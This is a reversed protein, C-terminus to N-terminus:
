RLVEVPSLPSHNKLYEAYVEYTTYPLEVPSGAEKIEATYDDAAFTVTCSDEDTLNRGDNLTMSEVKGNKWTVTMGSWYYDFSAEALAKPHHGVRQMHTDGEILVGHKGNELLNKLQRGTLTMQVARGNTNEGPLTITLQDELIGGGYFHLYVGGTNLIGNKYGGDSVLSVDSDGKSYLMHAFMQVTEAHTFDREFSGVEIADVGGEIYKGHIEDIEEALHSLDGNGRIADIIIDAAPVIIDEYGAYLMPAKISDLNQNWFENCIWLTDTNKANKLPFVASLTDTSLARVGEETSMWDLIRMADELKKENGEKELNKSLGIYFPINTGIFAQGARNRFPMLAFCIQPNDEIRQAITTQAGWLFMMAAEETLMRQEFVGPDWLDLNADYDFAGADILEQTMRIGEGFGDEAKAEGKQFAQCWKQGDPTYLFEAQAYSTMTTFYYGNAAGGMVIPTIGDTEKRIRRCLELLEEFSKPEEWGYKQFMDQNYLISRMTVYGPLQYISGNIDFQSLISPEYKGCVPSGSLDLLHEEAAEDTLQLSTICLDGFDDRSLLRNMAMTTNQGGYYYFDFKMDPFQEKLKEAYTSNPRVFVKLADPDGTFISDNEQTKKGICGALSVVTLLLFMGLM